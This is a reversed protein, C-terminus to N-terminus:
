WPEVETRQDNIELPVRCDSSPRVIACHSWAPEDALTLHPLSWPRSVPPHAVSRLLACDARAQRGRGDAPSLIWAGLCAGKM